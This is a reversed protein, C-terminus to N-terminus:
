WLGGAGLFGSATDPCSISYMVFLMHWPMLAGLPMLEAEAMSLQWRPQTSLSVQRGIAAASM